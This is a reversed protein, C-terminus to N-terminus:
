FAKFSDALTRTHIDTRRVVATQMVAHVFNHVVGNVFCQCTETGVDVNKQMGIAAAFHAIVAATERYTNMGFQATRSHFNAKGHQVGAALEAALAVLYGATQVANAGANYVRQALVQLHGDILVALNILLLVLAALHEVIQLHDAFGVAGARGDLKPRVGAAFFIRVANKFGALELKADEVIIVTFKKEM